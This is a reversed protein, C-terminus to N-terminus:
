RSPNCYHRKFHPCTEICFKLPSKDEILDRIERVMLTQGYELGLGKLVRKDWKRVKTEDGWPHKCGQGDYYPCGECVFDPGEKLEIEGEGQLLSKLNDVAQNFEKGRGPDHFDIFDSCYIHHPRVKM